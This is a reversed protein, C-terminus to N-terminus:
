ASIEPNQKGKPSHKCQSKRLGGPLKGMTNPPAQTKIYKCYTIHQKHYLNYTAQSLSM